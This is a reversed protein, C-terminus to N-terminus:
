KRRSRKSSRATTRLIVSNRSHGHCIAIALADAADSQLKENLGLLASVMHQVQEKKAAGTGVVAQKVFRPTYESVKVGQQVMACIAAGRAQGLKLASMANKSMFVQEIGAEQPKWQEVLRNIEYYIYGLKEPLDDGEIRLHGHAVHISRIGDTDIVGYGTCVSGPDIGLVRIMAVGSRVKPM